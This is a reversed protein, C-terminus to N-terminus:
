NPLAFIKNKLSIKELNKNKDIVEEIIEHDSLIEPSGNVIAITHEYHASPKGDKTVITNGDSAQRIAKKGLNIMPEIAIVLGEEIKPGRGRNGYNPVEPKEHLTKGVGHGVLERV